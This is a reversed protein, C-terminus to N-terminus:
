NATPKINNRQQLGHRVLCKINIGVYGNVDLTMQQQHCSIQRKGQSYLAIALM